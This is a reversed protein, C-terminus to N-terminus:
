KCIVTDASSEMIEFDTVPGTPGCRYKLKLKKTNSPDPDSGCLANESRIQCASKENCMSQVRATVNCSKAPSTMYFAEIIQIDAAVALRPTAIPGFVLALAVLMVRRM